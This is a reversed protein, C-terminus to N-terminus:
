TCIEAVKIVKLYCNWVDNSLILLSSSKACWRISVPEGVIGKVLCGLYSGDSVSFMQICYNGYMRDGMFLHGRGDTTVGYAVIDKEMGPQTGDMKWELADTETNYAFLGEKGAAVVLLQKDGDQVFCMDYIESHQTHIVRKGVAPKPQEDSLDLPRIERPETCLDEYWLDSSTAGTCMAGPEHPAVWHTRLIRKFGADRFKIANRDHHSRFVNM